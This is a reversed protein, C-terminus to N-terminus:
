QTAANHRSFLRLGCRCPVNLSLLSGRNACFTASITPRYRSGGPAATTSLRSSFVCIWANSRVWGNSGISNARTGCNTPVREHDAESLQQDRAQRRGPISRRAGFHLLVVDLKFRTGDPINHNTTPMYKRNVDRAVVSPRRNVVFMSRTSTALRATAGILLSDAASHTQSSATM